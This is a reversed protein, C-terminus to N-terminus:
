EVGNGVALADDGNVHFMNIAYQVIGMTITFASLCLWPLGEYFGVLAVVEESRNVPPVLCVNSHM